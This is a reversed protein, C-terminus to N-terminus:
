VDFPDLHHATRLSHQVAQVGRGAVDANDGAPGMLTIREVGFYGSLVFCRITTVPQRGHQGAGRSLRQAHTERCSRRSISAANWGMRDVLALQRKPSQDLNEGGPLTPM